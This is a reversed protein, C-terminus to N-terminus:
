PSKCVIISHVNMYVCRQMSMHKRKVKYLDLTSNKHLSRHKKLFWWIPKRLMQVVEYHDYIYSLVFSFAVDRKVVLKHTM